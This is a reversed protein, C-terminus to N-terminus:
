MEYLKINNKISFEIAEKHDIVDQELGKFLRVTSNNKRKAWLESEDGKTVINIETVEYSRQATKIWM